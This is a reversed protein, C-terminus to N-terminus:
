FRLVPEAAPGIRLGTSLALGSLAFGPPNRHGYYSAPLLPLAYSIGTYVGAYCRPSLLLRVIFELGPAAALHWGVFWRRLEPRGWFTNAAHVVDAWAAGQLEITPRLWCFEVPSWPYGIEFSGQLLGLDCTVIDGTARIAGLRGRGGVSVSGVLRAGHGGLAWIPQELQPVEGAGLELGVAALHENLREVRPWLTTIEIGGFGAATTSALLLLTLLRILNTGPTPNRSLGCFLTPSTM